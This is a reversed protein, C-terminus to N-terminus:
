EREDPYREASELAQAAHNRRDARVVWWGLGVVGAGAVAFTVIVAMTAFPWEGTGFLITM